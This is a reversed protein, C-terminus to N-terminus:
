PGVPVFGNVSLDIVHVETDAATATNVMRRLRLGSAGPWRYIPVNTTLTTLTSATPAFSVSWEEGSATVENPKGTIRNNGYLPTITLSLVGVTGAGAVTTASLTVYTPRLPLSAAATNTQTLPMSGDRLSWLPVDQLLNLTSNTLVLRRGANNSVVTNLMNTTRAGATFLNTIAVLNSVGVSRFDPNIFSFSRHPVQAQATMVLVAVTLLGILLKKM